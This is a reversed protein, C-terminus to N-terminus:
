LRRWDHSYYVGRADKGRSFCTGTPLQRPDIVDVRKGCYPCHYLIRTKNGSSYSSYNEYNNNTNKRSGGMLMDFLAM